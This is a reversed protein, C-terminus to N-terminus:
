LVVAAIPTAITPRLQNREVRREPGGTVVSLSTCDPVGGGAGAVGVAAAESAGARLGLAVAAGEVLTASHIREFPRGAAPQDCGEASGISRGRFSNAPVHRPFM